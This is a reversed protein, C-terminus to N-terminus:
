NSHHVTTVHANKGPYAYKIGADFVAFTKLSAIDAEKFIFGDPVAIRAKSEQGTVPNRIPELTAHVFQGVKFSSLAGDFKWEFPASKSELWHDITAAVVGWPLGGAKGTVITRVAELQDSSAKEDIYVIGTGGGEHIQRPWKAFFAFKVGNLKTSEYHGRTVNLAFGGECFGMTPKAGLNCPCGWDCNCAQIYEGDYEWKKAMTM